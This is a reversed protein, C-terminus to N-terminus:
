HIPRGTRQSCEDPQPTNCRLQKGLGNSLRSADMGSRFGKLLSPLFLRLVKWNRLLRPSLPLLSFSSVAPLKMIKTLFYGWPCMCDYLIYDPQAQHTIEILEPLIAKTTKLLARAAEQPITGNLGKAEFYDDEINKYACFEVGTDGIRQRYHETAYYRIAHGRRTLETVLPLSPNIHGHAPINFFLAKPM